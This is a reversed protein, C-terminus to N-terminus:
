SEPLLLRRIEEQPADGVRLIESGDPRMVAPNPCLRRAEGIDHTVYLASTRYRGCLRSLLGQMSERLLSDLGSFPEDLLLLRPGLAFARALAARQKMGGSLEHPWRGGCDALGVEELWFRAKTQAAARTDEIKAVQLAYVLNEEVRKWPFLQDFSQFVMFCRPSPNLIPAGDMLISGGDPAEFGAILRLLTSKGCGSRGLLALLEGEELTLSVGRLVPKGPYSKYLNEVTLRTM